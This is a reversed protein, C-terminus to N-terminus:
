SKVKAAVIVMEDIWWSDRVDDPIELGKVSQVSFESFYNLLTRQHSRSLSDIENSYYSFTGGPKLHKAALEFFPEAVSVCKRAIYAYEEADMPYTHFFIGDYLSFKISVDEWRGELVIVKTDTQENGWIRCQEAIYPVCEVITHSNVEYKQIMAASLGRGFGIELVDGGGSATLNAMHQMIPLQWLEMIDEPQPEVNNRDSLIMEESGPVFRTALRDLAELDWCFETVARNLLWNRQATRPPSIFNDDTVELKLQFQQHRKLKHM